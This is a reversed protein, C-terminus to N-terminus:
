PKWVKFKRLIKIMRRQEAAVVRASQADDYPQSPSPISDKENQVACRKLETIIGSLVKLENRTM